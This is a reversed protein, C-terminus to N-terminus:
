PTLLLPFVFRLQYPRFLINARIEGFFYLSIGISALSLLVEPGGVGIPIGIMVLKSIFESRKNAKVLFGTEDRDKDSIYYINYICAKPSYKNWMNSEDYIKQLRPFINRLRKWIIHAVVYSYSVYTMAGVQFMAYLTKELDNTLYVVVSTISSIATLAASLFIFIGFCNNRYKIRSGTGDPVPFIAMIQFTKFNYELPTMTVMNEVSKISVSSQGDIQHGKISILRKFICWIILTMLNRNVQDFISNNCRNVKYHNYLKLAIHVFQNGITANIHYNQSFICTNVYKLTKM